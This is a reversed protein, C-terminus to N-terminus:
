TDIKFYEWNQLPCHFSFCRETQVRRQSNLLLFYRFNNSFSKIKRSTNKEEWECQKSKEQCWTSATLMLLLLLLRGVFTSLPFVAIFFLFRQHLRSFFCSGGKNKPQIELNTAIASKGCLNHTPLLKNSLQQRVHHQCTQKSPSHAHSIHIAKDIRAQDFHISGFDFFLDVIIRQNSPRQEIKSNKRPFECLFFFESFFVFEM